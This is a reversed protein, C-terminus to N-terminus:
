SLSLRKRLIILGEIGIIIPATAALLPMSLFMFGAGLIAWPSITKWAGPLLPPLISTGIRHRKFYMVWGSIFSFMLSIGFIILLVQNWVGFEGRHFPIGIATAKGFLPQDDWGSYFLPQGTYADLLMDFRKTPDGRDVHNARWFGAEGVPARLEIAVSPANMKVSQWAQQWNIMSHAPIMTKLNSEIGHGHDSHNHEPISSKFHAPIPPSKQDLADRAWRIQEGANKSWTLGTVLIAASMVSMLIGITAHWYRWQERSSGNQTPNFYGKLMPMWLFIGTVLMVLTWSAAFEIVWRWGDQLYTSHLKKSWVTFRESQPLQGLVQNTYPNIYVVLSRAPLGFSPRLFSPQSQTPNILEPKASATVGHGSHGVSQESSSKSKPIFAVKVSEIATQPAIVSYLDWNNPVAQIASLISEDLPRSATQAEVYDLRGYLYAEIQPSLAYILGTVIAAFLFPSAIIAAWFHIRWLLSRRQLMIKNINVEGTQIITTSM